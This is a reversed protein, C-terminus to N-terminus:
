ETRFVGFIAYRNGTGTVDITLSLTEFPGTFAITADDGPEERLGLSAWLSRYHARIEDPTAAVSGVLSLQMVTDETAISSSIISSDPLPEVISTPLDPMLGGSRSGAEPLPATVLPMSRELPPLGAGPDTTPPPLVESGATPTAGPLPGATPPASATPSPQAEGEPQWVGTLAAIIVAGAVVLVGVVAITVKMATTLASGQTNGSM